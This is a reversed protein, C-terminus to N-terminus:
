IEYSESKNALEVYGRDIAMQKIDKKHYKGMPFITRKLCEQSLGWLVYSQDKSEDLGKSVVYRGNEERVQAYHGTAIFKCGLM